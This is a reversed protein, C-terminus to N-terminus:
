VENRKTNEKSGNRKTEETDQPREETEVFQLLFETETPSKTMVAYMSCILTPKEHRDRLQDHIEDFWKQLRILKQM